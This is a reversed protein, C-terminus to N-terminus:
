DAVKAYDREIGDAVGRLLAPLESLIHGPAVVSFGHGRDGGVVLVVVGLARTERLLRMTEDDYKGPGIM